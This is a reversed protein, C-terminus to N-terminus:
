YVSPIQKWYIASDMIDRLRERIWLNAKSCQRDNVSEKEVTWMVCDCVIFINKCINVM